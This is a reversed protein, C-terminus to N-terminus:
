SDAAVDYAVHGGARRAGSTVQHDTLRGDPFLHEVALGEVMVLHDALLRRHCRWWVSESCMVTAQRDGAVTLLDRVGAAFEPSAMHDGYARFQPNRLAVNPSDNAPRRRGGLAPIWHYSIGAESLWKAMEEGALQPHRRSGPYRRVDIVVDIGAGHLLATFTPADATGHGVTRMM